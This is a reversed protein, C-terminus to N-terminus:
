SASEARLRDFLADMQAGVQQEGQGDFELIGLLYEPGSDGVTDREISGTQCGPATCEGTITRYPQNPVCGCLLTAAVILVRWSM